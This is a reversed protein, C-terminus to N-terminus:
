SDIFHKRMIISPLSDFNVGIITLGAGVLFQFKDRAKNFIPVQITRNAVCKNDLWLDNM